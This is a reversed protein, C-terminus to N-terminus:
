EGGCDTIAQGSGASWSCIVVGVPLRWPMTLKVSDLHAERGRETSLPALRIPKGLAEGCRAVACGVPSAYCGRKLQCHALTFDEGTAPRVASFIYVGNIDRSPSADRQAGRQCRDFGKKASLSSAKPLISASSRAAGSRKPKVSSPM